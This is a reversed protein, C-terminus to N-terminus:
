RNLHFYVVMQDQIDFYPYRGYQDRQMNKVPYYREGKVLSKLENIDGKTAAKQHEPTFIKKVLDVAAAGAAAQAVGPLSMEEVKQKPPEYIEAAVTEVADNNQTSPLQIEEEKFQKLQKRLQYASVRCSDSCYKQKRRKTPLYEKSCYQCTYLHNEEKM